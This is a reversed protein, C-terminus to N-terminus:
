GPTVAEKCRLAEIKRESLRAIRKWWRRLRKAADTRGRRRALLTIPVPCGRPSLYARLFRLRDTQRAVGWEDLSVSLRMLNQMRRRVSVRKTRVLGDLDVLVPRPDPGSAPAVLINPAKLDRHALGMGHMRQILRALQWTVHRRQAAPPHSGLWDSLPRANEIVETMLITDAVPGGRRLDLAAAPRATAIGRALLAHGRRFATLSRSAGLLSRVAGRSRARNHRKAILSRGDDLRVRWVTSTRGEKLPTARGAFLPAAGGAGAFLAEVADAWDTAAWGRWPGAAIRRFYKSQRRTRRDRRLYFRQRYIATAKAVDRASPIGPRLEGLRVLCRRREAPTAIPEFFHELQMLHELASDSAAEHAEALDVLALRWDGPTGRILINGPHLDPLYLSAEDLQAILGALRYALTRPDIVDEPLSRRRRFVAVLEPPRAGPYPPDNPCPEFYRSFLYEDLRQGGPIERTILAEPAGLALAVPEPVDLGAARAALLADWERRGPGLGLWARLRRVPGGPEYLKVYYGRGASEFRMMRRRAGAKVPTLREPQEPPWGDALLPEAAEPRISWRRGGHAIIRTEDM